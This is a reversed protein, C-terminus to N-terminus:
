LIQDTTTYRGHLWRAGVCYIPAKVQGAIGQIYLLLVETDYRRGYGVCWVCWVSGVNNGGTDMKKTYELVWVIPAQRVMVDWGLGVCTLGLGGRGLGWSFSHELM